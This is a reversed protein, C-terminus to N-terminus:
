SFELVSLGPSFRGKVAAEYFAPGIIHFIDGVAVGGIDRRCFPREWRLCGAPRVNGAQFAVQLDIEVAQKIREM